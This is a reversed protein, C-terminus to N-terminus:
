DQLRICAAEGRGAARLPPKAGGCADIADACRSKFPCGPPLDIPSPIEGELRIREPRYAPDPPLHASMLARTYPHRPADFIQTSKAREMVSGLYLVLIEDSILKLTGLDHSIFLMGAGSEAKIEALLELIGARVSLDLSSTPEDLVILKPDTAIARAVCVRQLQGGSLESPFRDLMGRGLHVREALAEARARRETASLTTHLLLPEEILRRVANRPNLASWPDQFVMQMRARLPRCDQESLDTIDRGDFLIRGASPTILKLVARGITSKGSGSEGVLGVTQGPMISFSVGNVAHVRKGRGAPFHKALAEVQLIPASM